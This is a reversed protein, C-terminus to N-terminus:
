MPRSLAIRRVDDMAGDRLHVPMRTVEGDVTMVIEAECAPLDVPETPIAFDHAVQALPIVQGNAHLQLDVTASRSASISQIEEVDELEVEDNILFGVITGHGGVVAGTAARIADAVRVDNPDDEDIDDPDIVWATAMDNCGMVVDAYERATAIEPFSQGDVSCQFQGFGTHHPKISRVYVM